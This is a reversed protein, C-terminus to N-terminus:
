RGSKRLVARVLVDTASLIPLHAEHLSLLCLETCALVVSDASSAWPRSAIEVLVAALDDPDEGAKMSEVVQQVDHQSRADPYLPTVDPDFHPAYLGLQVTATTALMAPARSGMVTVAAAVEDLLHVVPVSVARQMESHYAHTTSSPIAIVSAGMGELTEVLTILTPLPSPGCGFLHDIRSPINPNSVLVIGLHEADDRAPTCAVLRRYFEAGALPGLGGLIGVTTAPLPAAPMSRM